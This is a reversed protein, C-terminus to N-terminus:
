CRHMLVAPICKEPEAVLNHAEDVLVTYDGGETFFRKLKARPDYVNNYDCIVIDAEMAINLSLEFPCLSHMNALSLISEYDHHVNYDIKDM